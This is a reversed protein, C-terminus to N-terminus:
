KGLYCVIHGSRGLSYFFGRSEPCANLVQITKPLLQHEMALLHRLALGCSFFEVFLSRFVGLRPLEEEAPELPEDSIVIEDLLEDIHTANALQFEVAAGVADSAKTFEAVLADGRIEHAIGGHAAITESFRRFTDQIREHALTENKQVLSTSEVVDAHLLVALKRSLDDKAM